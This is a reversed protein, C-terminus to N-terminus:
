YNRIRERYAVKGNIVETRQEPAYLGAKNGTEVLVMGQKKICDECVYDGEYYADGYLNETLLSTNCYGCKEYVKEYDMSYPVRYSIRPFRKINGIFYTHYSNIYFSHKVNPCFKIKCMNKNFVSAILAAWTSTHQLNDEGYSNLIIIGGSLLNGDYPLFWVRGYLCGDKYARIAGGGASALYDRSATFENWWCSGPNYYDEAKGAAGYTVKLTINWEEKSGLLNGIKEKDEDTLDVNFSDHIWKSLAKTIRTRGTYNRIFEEIDLVKDYDYLEERRRLFRAVSYINPELYNSFSVPYEGEAFM